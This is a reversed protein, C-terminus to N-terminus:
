APARRAPSLRVVAIERQVGRQYGEYGGFAANLAQWLRSRDEGTTREARVPLVDRGVQVTAEPRAQLNLWWAPERDIGGNSAAVVLAEGDRVYMLPSTFSRGSRRGTVTLLLVDGGRFRGGVRGGSARYLRTHVAGVVKM